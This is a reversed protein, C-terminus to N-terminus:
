RGLLRRARRFVAQAQPLGMAATLAFYVIGFPAVVALFTVVSPLAPPAMLSGGWEQAVGPMPGRLSTLAVKVGLAVVGAVAAAGWLKPLLGPPPGVHGGIRRALSWRLLSAEV